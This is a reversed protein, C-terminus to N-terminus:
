YMFAVVRPLEEAMGEETKRCSWADLFYKTHRYHFVGGAREVTVPVLTETGSFTDAVIV